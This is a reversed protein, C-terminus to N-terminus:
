QPIDGRDFSYMLQLINQLLPGHRLKCGEDQILPNRFFGIVRDGPRSTFGPCRSYALLQPLWGFLVNSQECLRCLHLRGFTFTYTFDDRNVDHLCISPYPAARSM